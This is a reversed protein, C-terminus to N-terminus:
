FISFPRAFKNFFGDPYFASISGFLVGFITAILIAAVALIITGPLKEYIIETVYRNSQYSKKLYPLKFVLKFNSSVPLVAAGKYKNYDYFFRSEAENTNYFSILSVDNLFQFYRIHIPQDIGWEKRINDVVEKSAQQGGSLTAPDGPKISYISFVITIVGLLVLIGYLLKKLFYKLM